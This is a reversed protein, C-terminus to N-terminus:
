RREMIERIKAEAAALSEKAPTKGSLVDHVAQYYAGSVENYHRGAATSPRPVASLFVDKMAAAHPQAKLVEPDAYVDPRTAFYGGEVARRVQAERTSLAAVFKKALVVNKSYHSVGLTWGGLAAAPRERGPFPTIAFNGKIKSGAENAKEHVYPWNRLFAANGEQFVARSEEEKYTLVGKPSITGIWGHVKELVAATKDNNLDIAGSGSLIVGGGAGYQWELANCTLGEYAAGQFVYGHFNANGAAREGEQIKTAMTEMEDLSKPPAEFGYKKLLDTRYYLLGADAYFPVAVLKGSVTNNQIMPTFFDETNVSDSLDELHDALTGPWIVDIQYVDISDSKATFFKQYESLRETPNQPGIQFKVKCHNDQEFQAAMTKTISLQKGVADTIFTITPVDDQKKDSGCSTVLVAGLLLCAFKGLM